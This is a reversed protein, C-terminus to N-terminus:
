ETCECSEDGVVAVCLSCGKCERGVADVVVTVVDFPPSEGMDVLLMWESELESEVVAVAVEAM